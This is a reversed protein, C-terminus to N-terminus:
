WRDTAAVLADVDATTRALLIAGDAGAERWRAWAERPAELWPSGAVSSDSGLWDPGQFAVELRQEARPRGSAALAELYAPLHAEFTEGFATWGDGLRGALRAGGITEGGVIIPPPPSSGVMTVADVLPYFPSPRDIPGGTWIARIVAIAEELRAVREAADPFPIGLAHHEAPHGGICIGLVFRGESLDQLTTAMRALVAPHRNMVNVVFTGISAQRTTAAAATLITWGEVVPVTRDGKGIFHDWSWIGAYGAADLRRASELWWAPTARISRITVGIPLGDAM